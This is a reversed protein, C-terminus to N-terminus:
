AGLTVDDKVRQSEKGLVWNSNLPDRSHRYYTYNLYDKLLSWLMSGSTRSIAM